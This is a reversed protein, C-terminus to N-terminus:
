HVTATNSVENTALIPSPFLRQDTKAAAEPRRERILHAYVTMTIAPNAHGMQRSTYIVDEGQAIKWSGFSHRLDHIRLQSFAEIAHSQPPRRRRHNFFM